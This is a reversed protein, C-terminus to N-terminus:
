EIVTKQVTLKDIADWDYTVGLGPGQPVPFTGDKSVDDLADSYDCAYVPANFNGRAPGVMSLEYFNSNRIASMLARQAPGPAHLEVDLGLAEAFTAIKMAGTIGMDFDPDARVMDTGGALVFTAISEFGRIHEGMLLPTKVMSRMKQYAFAAQGEDSYPDEYWFFGAEDCAQGVKVADGWTQFMCGSDHMLAMKGEFKKGLGLITEIDRHTTGDTWGHVKYGRYGLDYCEEAFAIHQEPTGLGGEGDGSFWTSAYAKLSKRWGGLLKSVSMNARHGALDWLANDIAGAGMRDERGLARKFFEYAEQRALGDRGIMIRACTLTQAHSQAQSGVYAGVSGDRTEIRVALRTREGQGGELDIGGKGVGTMPYKILRVEIKKVATPLNVDPTSHLDAFTPM